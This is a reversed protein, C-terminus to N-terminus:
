KQHEVCDIIEQLRKMGIGESQEISLPHVSPELIIQPRTGNNRLHAMTKLNLTSPYAPILTCLWGFFPGIHAREALDYADQWMFFNEEKLSIWVGWELREDSEHVPIEICGRIFFFRNAIVCSDSTLFVDSERKEEPVDWFQVPRDAAYAPIGDHEKGCTACTFRM